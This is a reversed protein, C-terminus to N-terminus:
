GERYFAIDVSNKLEGLRLASDFGIYLEYDLNGNNDIYALNARVLYKFVKNKKRDWFVFTKTEKGDQNLLSEFDLLANERLINVISKNTDWWNKDIIEITSKDLEKINYEARLKELDRFYKFIDKLDKKSLKSDIIERM